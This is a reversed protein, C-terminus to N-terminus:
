AVRAVNQAHDPNADPIGSVAMYADGITKIRECGFLETIVEYLM